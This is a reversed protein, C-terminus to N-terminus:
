QSYPENADRSETLTRIARKLGEARREARELLEKADRIPQNWKEVDLDEKRITKVSSSM